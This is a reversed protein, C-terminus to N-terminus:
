FLIYVYKYKSANYNQNQKYNKEEKALEPVTQLPMKPVDFSVKEEEPVSDLQDYFEDSFIFRNSKQPQNDFDQNM